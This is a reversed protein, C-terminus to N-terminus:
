NLCLYDSCNCLNKLIIEHCLLSLYVYKLLLFINRSFLNIVLFKILNMSFLMEKGSDLFNFYTFHSLLYIAPVIACNCFQQLFVFLTVAPIFSISSLM